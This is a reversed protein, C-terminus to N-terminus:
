TCFIKASRLACSTPSMRVIMMLSDVVVDAVFDLLLLLLPLTPRLAPTPRKVNRSAALALPESLKLAFPAAESVFRAEPVTVTVTVSTSGFPLMTSSPVCDM